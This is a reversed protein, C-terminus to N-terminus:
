QRHKAMWERAMRQAETIQDPTMRKAVIERSKQAKEHSQASALTFWMHAEADDQPVGRGSLYMVGLINQAGASGQEAAKLYWNAAEAYDQPVGRGITYMFGLGGQARTDGREALPRLLRLATAYDKREYAAVGDELPGAHASVALAMIAIALFGSRLIAKM